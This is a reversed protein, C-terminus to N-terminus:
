HFRNPASKSSGKTLRYASNMGYGSIILLVVYAKSFSFTKKLYLATLVLSALVIYSVLCFKTDLSICGRNKLYVLFRFQHLIVQDALIGVMSVGGTCPSDGELQEIGM